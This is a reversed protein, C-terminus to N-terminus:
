SRLLRKTSGVATAIQSYHVKRKESNGASRLLKTVTEDIAAAAEQNARALNERSVARYSKRGERVRPAGPDQYRNVIGDLKRSLSRLERAAERYGPRNDITSAARSLAIRLCDFRYEPRLTDKCDGGGDAIMWVVGRTVGDSLGGSGSLRPDREGEISGSSYSSTESTSDNYQALIMYEALGAAVPIAGAAHGAPVVAAQVPSLLTTTMAGALVTAILRRRKRERFM